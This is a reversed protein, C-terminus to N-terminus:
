LFVQSICAIRQFDRWHIPTHEMYITSSDPLAVHRLVTGSDESKSTHLSMCCMSIGCRQLEERFPCPAQGVPTRHKGMHPVTSAGLPCLWYGFHAWLPEFVFRWFLPHFVMLTGIVSRHYKLSVKRYLIGFLVM